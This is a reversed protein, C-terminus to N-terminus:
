PENASRVDDIAHHELKGLPGYMWSFTVINVIPQFQPARGTPNSMRGEIIRIRICGLEQYASVTEQMTTNADFAPFGLRSARSRPEDAETLSSTWHRPHSSIATVM